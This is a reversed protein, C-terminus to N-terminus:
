MLNPKSSRSLDALCQETCAVDVFRLVDQVTPLQSDHAEMFLDVKQDVSHCLQDKLNSQIILGLMKDWTLSIGQKAFTKGLGSFAELLSAMTTHKDLDLQTFNHWVQIQAAQKV